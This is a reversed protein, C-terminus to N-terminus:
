LIGNSHKVTKMDMRSIHLETKCYQTTYRLVHQFVSMLWSTGVVNM